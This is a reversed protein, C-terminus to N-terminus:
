ETTAAATTFATEDKGCIQSNIVRMSILSYIILLCPHPPSKVTSAITTIIIIIHIIYYTTTLLLSDSIVTFYLSLHACILFAGLYKVLYEGVAAWENM